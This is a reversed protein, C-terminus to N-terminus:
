PCLAGLPIVHVGSPLTYGYETATIIALFAPQGVRATDIREHTIRLLNAEATEVMASGLKAEIAAWTGDAYEIIADAELGTEDRYHFVQGRQPEVYVRLDRVVMSEFVQGFYEPNGALRKPNIGLAACAMAPDAFHLKVGSRLRTRSCLPTRWAPLNEIAFVTELADLYTRVTDRDTSAGNAAVDGTLKQITAQSAVNRAISALLRKLRVPDHRVGTATRIDSACLDEIYSWNYDLAEAPSSDLLAPWGGTVALQALDRYSLRGQVASM